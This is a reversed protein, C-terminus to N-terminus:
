GLASFITETLASGLPYVPLLSRPYQYPQLAKHLSLSQKQWDSKGPCTEELYPRKLPAKEEM